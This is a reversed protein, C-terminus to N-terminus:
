AKTEDSPKKTEYRINKMQKDLQDMFMKHMDDIAVIIEDGKLEVNAIVEYEGLTGDELWQKEYKAMLPSVRDKIKQVKLGLKNLEKQAKEIEQSLKRGKQILEDKQALYKAIKKDKIKMSHNIPMRGYIAM